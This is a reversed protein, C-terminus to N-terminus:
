TDSPVGLAQLNCGTPQLHHPVRASNTPETSPSLVNFNPHRTHLPPGLHLAPLSRLMLAYSFFYKASDCPRGIKESVKPSCEYLTLSSM